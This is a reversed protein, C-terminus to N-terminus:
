SGAHSEGKDQRRSTGSDTLAAMILVTRREQGHREAPTQLTFNSTPLGPPSAARSQGSSAQSKLSSVGRGIPKTQVVPGTPPVALGASGRGTRGTRSNAKNLASGAASRRKPDVRSLNAKNSVIDGGREFHRRHRGPGGPCIPKTQVVPEAPPAALGASGRGTRGTRSNAKNRVTGGRHTRAGWPPEHPSHARWQVSGVECKFSRGFNAKNRRPGPCTGNTM